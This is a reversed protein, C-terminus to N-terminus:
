DKNTHQVNLSLFLRRDSLRFPKILGIGDTYYM